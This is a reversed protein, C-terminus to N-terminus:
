FVSYFFLIDLTRRFGESSTSIGLRIPRNNRDHSGPWTQCSLQRRGEESKVHQNWTWGKWAWAEEAGDSDEEAMQVQEMMLIFYDCRNNTTQWSLSMMAGSNLVEKDPEEIVNKLSTRSYHVQALNRLLTESHPVETHNRLINEWYPEHSLHLYFSIQSCIIMNVDARKVAVHPVCASWLFWLSVCMYVFICVYVRKCVWLCVYVCTCVSRCEYVRICVCYVWKYVKVCTYLNVCM